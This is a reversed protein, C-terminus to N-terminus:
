DQLKDALIPQLAEALVRHGTGSPHVDDVFLQNPGEYAGPNAEHVARFLRPGDIIPVQEQWAVLSMAMRHCWHPAGRPSPKQPVRLFADAKAADADSKVVYELDAPHAMDGLDAKLPPIVFVIWMGEEHAIEVFRELNARYHEYTVRSIVEDPALPTDPGAALRAIFRPLAFVEWWQPRGFRWGRFWVDDRGPGSAPPFDSIMNYVILGQLGLDLSRTLQALSQYTSYGPIASNIVDVRRTEPTNAEPPNFMAELRCAFTDRRPVGSGWVSSDGLLFVRQQGPPRPDAAEEDRFGRTSAPVESTDDHPLNWAKEWRALVPDVLKAGPRENWVTRDDGTFGIPAQHGEPALVAPVRDELARAAGELAALAAVIVGATFSLKRGLSLASRAM